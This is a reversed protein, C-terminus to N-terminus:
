RFLNAALMNAYILQNDSAVSNPQHINIANLPYNFANLPQCVDKLHTMRFIRSTTDDHNHPQQAKMIMNEHM